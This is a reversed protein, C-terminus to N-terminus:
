YNDLYDSIKSFIFHWRHAYAHKDHFLKRVMVRNNIINREKMSKVIGFVEGALVSIDKIDNKYFYVNDESLGIDRNMKCDYTLINAGSAGARFINWGLALQPNYLDMEHWMTDLWPLDLVVKANSYLYSHAWHKTPSFLINENLTVTEVKKSHSREWVSKPASVGIKLGLDSLSNLLKQRYQDRRHTRNSGSFLIDITNIYERSKKKFLFEKIVNKTLKKKFSWDSHFGTPLYYRKLRDDNKLTSLYSSDFFISVNNLSFKWKSDPFINYAKAWMFVPRNNLDKIITNGKDTGGVFLFIDWDRSKYKDYQNIHIVTSIINVKKGMIEVYKQIREFDYEDAFDVNKQWKRLVILLNYKKM